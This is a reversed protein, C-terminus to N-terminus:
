HTPSFIIGNYFSKNEREKIGNINEFPDIVGKEVMDASGLKGDFLMDAFFYYENKMLSCDSGNSDSALGIVTGDAFDELYHKLAGVTMVKVKYELTYKKKNIPNEYAIKRVLTKGRKVAALHEEHDVPVITKPIDKVSEKELRKIMGLIEARELVKGKDDIAQHLEAPVLEEMMIQAM